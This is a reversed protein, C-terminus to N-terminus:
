VVGSSPVVLRTLEVLTKKQRAFLTRLTAVNDINEESEQLLDNLDNALDRVFGERAEFQQMERGLKGTSNELEQIRAEKRENALELERIRALLAAVETSERPQEPHSVPDPVTDVPTEGAIDRGKRLAQRALENQRRIEQMKPNARNVEALVMNSVTASVERSRFAAAFFPEEDQGLSTRGYPNKGEMQMDRGYGYRAFYADMVSHLLQCGACLVSLYLFLWANEPTRTTGM